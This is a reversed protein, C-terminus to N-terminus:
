PINEQRQSPTATRGDSCLFYQCSVPYASKAISNHHHHFLLSVCASIRLLILSSRDNTYQLWTFLDDVGESACKQMYGRFIYLYFVCARVCVCVCVRVCACVRVCMCVNVCVCVCVCVCVMCVCCVCECVCVM